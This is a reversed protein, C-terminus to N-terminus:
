PLKMGASAQTAAGRLSRCLFSLCSIQVSVSLMAALLRMLCGIDDKSLAENSVPIRFKNAGEPVCRVM